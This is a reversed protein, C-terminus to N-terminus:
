EVNESKLAQVVYAKFSEFQPGFEQFIANDPNKKIVHHMFRMALVFEKAYKDKPFWGAKETVDVMRAFDHHGGFNFNLVEKMKGDVSEIMNVYYSKKEKM